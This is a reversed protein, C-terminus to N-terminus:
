DIVLLSLCDSYGYVRGNVLAHGMSSVMAADSGDRLFAPSAVHDFYRSPLNGSLDYGPRLM